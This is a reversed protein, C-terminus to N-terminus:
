INQESTLLEKVKQRLGLRRTVYNIDDPKEQVKGIIEKIEAIDYFKKTGAVIDSGDDIEKLSDIKDLAEFLEQFNNSEAVLEGKKQELLEGLNQSREIQDKGILCGRMESLEKAIEELDTPYQEIKTEDSSIGTEFNNM